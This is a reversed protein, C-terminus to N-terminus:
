KSINKLQGSALRDDVVYGDKIMIIRQCCEAIAIDHTVIAFTTQNQRHLSIFEAMVRDTNQSDLAGTPEDALIVTPETILARCLAVRQKQGGSLENPRKDQLSEIGFKHLLKITRQRAVHISVNRYLLPLMINQQITLRPILLFAQFLFGINHNREYALQNDHCRSVDQSNLYYHGLSPRDLLGLINLLTSKGSGSPGIIAVMEGQNITLNIEKLAVTLTQGVGYSKGIGVLEIIPSL